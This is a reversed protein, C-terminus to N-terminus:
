GSSSRSQRQVGRFREDVEVVDMVETPTAGHRDNMYESVALPLPRTADTIIM